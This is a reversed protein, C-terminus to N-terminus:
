AWVRPDANKSSEELYEYLVANSWVTSEVTGPADQDVRARPTGRGDAALSPLRGSPIV